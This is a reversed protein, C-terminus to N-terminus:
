VNWSLCATTIFIFKQIRVGYFLFIIMMIKKLKKSKELVKYQNLRNHSKDNPLLIKLDSIINDIIHPLSIMLDPNYFKAENLNVINDDIFLCNIPRLGMDNIIKTIRQGKSTWDISKFVFYDNIDLEKLKKETPEYDNKSCISNVIGYDTLDKILQINKEIPIIGGESLTGSWFTDDLDWIILKIKNIDM